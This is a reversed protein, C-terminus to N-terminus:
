LRITINKGFYKEFTKIFHKDDGYKMEDIYPKSDVGMEKCAFRAYNLLEEDYGKVERPVGNKDRIKVPM